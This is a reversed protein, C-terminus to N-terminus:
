ISIGPNFEKFKKRIDAKTGHEVVLDNKTLIYENHGYNYVRYDGSISQIVRCNSPGKKIRTIAVYKRMGMTIVEKDILVQEAETVPDKILVRLLRRAFTKVTTEILLIKGGYFTIKSKSRNESAFGSYYTHTIKKPNNLNTLPTDSKRALTNFAKESMGPKLIIQSILEIDEDSFIKRKKIEETIENTRYVRNGFALALTNDDVKSLEETNMSSVSMLKASCGQLMILIFIVYFISIFKTSTMIIKIEM